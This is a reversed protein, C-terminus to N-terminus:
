ARRRRLALGAVGLLLLLGSTPEPVAAAQWGTFSTSPSSGGGAGIALNSLSGASDAEFHQTGVNAIYWTKDDADTYTYIIASYLDIPSDPTASSISRTDTLTAAGKNFKVTDGLQTLSGVGDYITKSGAAVDATLAALWTNYTNKDIGYLMASVTGGAKDATATSFKGTGDAALYTTGSKWTVSAANAMVTASVIAVTMMLKKM